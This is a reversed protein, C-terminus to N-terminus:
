LEFYGIYFTNIVVNIAYFKYYPANVIYNTLRNLSKIKTSTYVFKSM